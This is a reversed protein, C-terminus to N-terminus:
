HLKIGRVIELGGGNAMTASIKLPLNMDPYDSFMLNVTTKDGDIWIEAISRASKSRLSTTDVRLHIIDGDKWRRCVVTTWLNMANMFCPRGDYRLGWNFCDTMNGVGQLKGAKPRFHFRNDTFGLIADMDSGAFYRFEFLFVQKEYICIGDVHATGTKKLWVDNPLVKFIRADHEM